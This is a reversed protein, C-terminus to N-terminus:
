CGNFGNTVLHLEAAAPFERPVRVRRGVAESVQNGFHPMLPKIHRTHTYAHLRVSWLVRSPPQENRPQRESEICHFHALHVTRTACAAPFCLTSSRNYQALAVPSPTYM